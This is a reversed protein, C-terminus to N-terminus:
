SGIREAEKYYVYTVFRGANTRQLQVIVDIVEHLERLIDEDRMSPVNNLKYMQTMRLFAIKPNGAHLSTMSGNHGTACASIFDLVERGRIEGMILRDPRLRLSGQVLDQMTLAAAEKEQRKPALLNVQNAHPLTVEFTDELTILREHHPIHQCCANLFTTKGSSTEGAIVINKKLVVAQKIFEGWRQQQYLTLLAKDSDTMFSAQSDNLHFPKAPHYFDSNKYDELTRAAISPRRISLTYHRAAPPMVLQVRSGDILNGSLMPSSENLVQGNENAILTFLRKIHLTTLEPVEFRRMVSEQEVFIERPKNLLIESVTNDSLWRTLPTLLGESGPAYLSSPKVEM